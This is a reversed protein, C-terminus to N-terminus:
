KLDNGAVDWGESLGPGGRAFNPLTPCTQALGGYLVNPKMREHIDIQM